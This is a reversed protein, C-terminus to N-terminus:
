DERLQRAYHYFFYLAFPAGIYIALAAILGLTSHQDFLEPGVFFLLWLLILSGVALLAYTRFSNSMLGVDRAAVRMGKVWRM